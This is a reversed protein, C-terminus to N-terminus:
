TVAHAGLRHRPPDADHPDGTLDTTPEHANPRGPPADECPGTANAAFSIPVHHGLVIAGFGAVIWTILVALHGAAAQSDFYAVSRLLNVGAGPPLWQGLHNVAGPLLEPASTAGSFPNGVFVMLVAALALGATGVLAILGATPASIALITLTLAAWDRIAHHPLAGLLAQAILYTGLAAIAAVAGLGLIQRWAPRFRIVVGICAAIVISCITLPLLASSLVSGRADDSSLPVVDTTHVAPARVHQRAAQGSIGIAITTLTQAVLPSAASAELVDTRGDGAAYAGYIHRDRIADLAADEDAYLRVDFAGPHEATLRAILQESAPASGVVGIPLDRPEVRAAPWAFALVALAIVAPLAVSVIALSRWPHGALL